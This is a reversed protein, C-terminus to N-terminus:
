LASNFGAIPEGRTTDATVRRVAQALVSDDQALLDALPVESLDTLVSRWEQPQEGEQSTHM